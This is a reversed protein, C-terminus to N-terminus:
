PRLSSARARRHDGQDLFSVLRQPAWNSPDGHEGSTAMVTVRAGAARAERACLDANSKKPVDTDDPSALLLLPVGRVNTVRAPSVAAETRGRYAEAITAGYRDRLTRLDCVPYIGIWRDPRLSRLIEVGDLGGMSEAIVSVHLYGRKRLQGVLNEYVRVSSPTGWNNGQADAGAVAYGARLLAASAPARLETALIADGVDDFGHLFLVVKHSASKPTALVARGGGGTLAEVRRAARVVEPRPKRVPTSSGGCGTILATLLLVTWSLRKLRVVM